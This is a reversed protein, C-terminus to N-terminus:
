SAFFYMSRGTASSYSRRLSGASFVFRTLVSRREVFAIRELGLLQGYFRDAAALDEAYLATELVRAITTPPM